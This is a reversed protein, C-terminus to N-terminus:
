IGILSLDLLSYRNEAGKEFCIGFFNQSGVLGETSKM